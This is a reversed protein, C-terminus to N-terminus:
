LDCQRSDSSHQLLSLCRGLSQEAAQGQAFPPDAAASAAALAADEAAPAPLPIAPPIVEDFKFKFQEFDDM